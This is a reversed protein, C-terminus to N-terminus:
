WNVHGELLVAGEAAGSAQEGYRGEVGLALTRRRLLDLEFRGGLRVYQRSGAEVSLGSYPTVLGRGGLAALGYAVETQLRASDGAPSGSLLSVGQSWLGEVNSASAGYAPAVSVSLGRRSAGPDIRLTVDGGWEEYGADSAVLLRGQASVTLGYRPAEYTLEVSTELGLGRAADGGDYRLGVAASPSVRGGDDLLREYAVELLGRLRQTAIPAADVLGQEDVSLRGWALEGKGSLTTTGGPLLTTSTALRRVLGVAASTMQLDRSESLSALDLQGWGYGLTGWLGLNGNRSRWGVYPHLSTLAIGYADSDAGATWDFTGDAWGLTLGTLWQERAWLDVGLRVGLLDGNWSLPGDGSGSLQWYRGKGWLTIRPVHVCDEVDEDDEVVITSVLFSSAGLLQPTSLTGDPLAPADYLAQVDQLAPVGTRPLASLDLSGGGITYGGLEYTNVPECVGSMLSDVRETIADLAGELVAQSVRALIERQLPHGPPRVDVRGVGFLGALTVNRACLMDSEPDYTSEPATWVGGEAYLLRLESPSAAGLAAPPVPLCVTVGGDPVPTVAVDVVVPTDAPVLRLGNGTVRTAAGPQFTVTLSPLTTGDVALPDPLLVLAPPPDGRTIIIVTTEGVKFSEDAPSVRAGESVAATLGAAVGDYEGGAAAHAITVVEDRLDTDLVADLTVTQPANWDSPTFTLSVPSVTVADEDPNSVMVTVAATPLTTLAVTYTAAEGGEILTASTPSLILAPADDDAVAAAFDAGVGDYGGGSAVHTLTVTEAVTDADQVANLTVTQPTNWDSPTFTLSVPSVTVADEDPNSVTVTVAATPLTALAM